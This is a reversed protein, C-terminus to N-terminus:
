NAARSLIATLDSFIRGGMDRMGEPMESLWAVEHSHRRYPACCLQPELGAGVVAVVLCDLVTSNGQAYERGLTTEGALVTALLAKDTTLWADQVLALGTTSASTIAAACALAEDAGGELEVFAMRVAGDDTAALVIQRFVAAEGREAVGQELLERALVMLSDADLRTDSAM